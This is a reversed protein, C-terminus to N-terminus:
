PEDTAVRFACIVYYDDVAYTIVELRFRRAEQHVHNHNVIPALVNNSLMECHKEDYKNSM